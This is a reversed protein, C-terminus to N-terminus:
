FPRGRGNSARHHGAGVHTSATPRIAGQADTLARLNALRQDAQACALRAETATLKDHAAERANEIGRLTNDYDALRDSYARYRALDAVLGWDDTERAAKLVHIFMKGRPALLGTFWDGLPVPKRDPNYRGQAHLEIVYIPDGMGGMTGEICTPNSPSQRVFRVQM